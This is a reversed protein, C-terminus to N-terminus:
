KTEDDKMRERRWSGKKERDEETEQTDMQENKEMGGLLRLSEQKQRCTQAHRDDAQEHLLCVRLDNEGPSRDLM